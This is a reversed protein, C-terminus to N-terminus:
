LRGKIFNGTEVRNENKNISSEQGGIDNGGSKNTSIDGYENGDEQDKMGPEEQKRSENEEDDGIRHNKEGPNPKQDNHAPNTKENSMGDKQQNLNDNQNSNM